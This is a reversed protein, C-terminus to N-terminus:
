FVEATFFYHFIALLPLSQAYLTPRAIDDLKIGMRVWTPPPLPHSLSTRYLTATNCAPQCPEPSGPTLHLANHWLNHPEQLLWHRHRFSGRPSGPRLGYYAAKRRYADRHATVTNKHLVKKLRFLEKLISKSLYMFSPKSFPWREGCRSQQPLRSIHPGKFPVKLSLYFFVTSCLGERQPLETIHIHLSPEKMPCESLSSFSPEPFLDDRQIYTNWIAVQLFPKKV